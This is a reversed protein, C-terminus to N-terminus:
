IKGTAWIWSARKPRPTKAIPAEGRRAGEANRQAQSGAQARSERRELEEQLKARQESRKREREQLAKARSEQERKSKAM